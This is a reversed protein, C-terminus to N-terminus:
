KLGRIEEYTWPRSEGDPYFFRKPVYEARLAKLVKTETPETIGKRYLERIRLMRTQEVEKGEAIDHWKKRRGELDDEPRPLQFGKAKFYEKGKSDEGAYVKPRVYIAKKDWIKELKLDGLEQSVEFEDTTSFGDTDCYHVESCLTMFDYLSRRAYATIHASLPVHRHAIKKDMEHVFTGPFLMRMGPLIQSPNTVISEKTECEAFKGYICNQLLKGAERELPNTANKKFNYMDHIYPALDYFPAFTLVERVKLIRGGERLLLDVDIGTLWASWRGRPFFIRQGIRAPLPPLYVDPVELDVDAIYLSSDEPIRKNITLLEGPCPYRMANPFSSNIDYYNAFDTEKQINEVRSAVYARTAMENAYAGTPISTKLYKRRFLNMATSALTGMLEGGMDAIIDQFQNIAEWLIVCDRENYTVLEHLPANAFFHEKEKQTLEKNGKEVGLWSGIEALSSRLLWFSDVFHWSNKGRTVHVMVASSGSFNSHHSFESGFSQMADLIFTVDYLGGAHAYFWKNRNSHTLEGELFAKVTRYFRYSKGDYVGVIRPILTHPVWELDYVLFNRRRAPRKLPSLM